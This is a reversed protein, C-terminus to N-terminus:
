LVGGVTLATTVLFQVVALPLLVKWGLRMLQDYRFRPYTWRVWIFFVLFFATKVAFSGVGLLWPAEPWFPISPGGWFLTTNLAAMITMACYEGLFFLAFRMASYETHFGGVLEPECEAFDFPHRNTEAFMAITFLVFALPQTWVNWDVLARQQEVIERLNLSGTVLVVSLVALMLSLEYSIMQAAGRLAGLLSYKNNSSWGGLMIGYVALGGFALLFLVGINLNLIQLLIIRGGIELQNGFPIVAFTVLAPFLTIVPAFHFAFKLGKPPIFDEKFILKLTEAISHFLGWLRLGLISARNAGLRDQMLAPQKREAWTLLVAFGFVLGLVFSIKALAIITEELLPTM